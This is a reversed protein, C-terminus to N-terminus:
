GRKCQRWVTLQSSKCESSFCSGAALDEAVAPGDGELHGLYDDIPLRELLYQPQDASGHGFWGSAGAHGGITARELFDSRLLTGVRRFFLCNPGM